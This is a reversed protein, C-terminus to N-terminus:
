QGSFVSFVFLTLNRIPAGIFGVMQVCSLVGVVSRPDVVGMRRIDVNPAPSYLRAVLIRRWRYQLFVGALFCGASEM